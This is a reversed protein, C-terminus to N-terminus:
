ITHYFSSRVIHAHRLSMLLRAEDILGEICRRKFEKKDAKTQRTSQSDLTTMDIQVPTNDKEDKASTKKVVKVAFVVAKQQEKQKGDPRDGACTSRKPTHGNIHNSVPM